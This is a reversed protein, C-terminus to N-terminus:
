LSLTLVNEVETKKIFRSGTKKAGFGGGDRGGGWGEIAKM